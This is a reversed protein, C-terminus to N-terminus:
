IGSAGNEVGRLRYAHSLARDNSVLMELGFLDEKTLGTSNGMRRNERRAIQWFTVRRELKLSNKLARAGSKPRWREAKPALGRMSMRLGCDMRWTLGYAVRSSRM